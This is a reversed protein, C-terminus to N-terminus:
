GIIRGMFISLIASPDLALPVLSSSSIETSLSQCVVSGSISQLPVTLSTPSGCICISSSKISCPEQWVKVTATPHTTTTTNVIVLSPTARPTSITFSTVLTANDSSFPESSKTSINTIPLVTSNVATCVSYCRPLASCVVTPNWALFATLTINNLFAISTCTDNKGITAYETCSATAPVETPADSACGNSTNEQGNVGVCAWFGLLLTSSNCISAISPNWAIFDALSINSSRIITSCTINPSIFYWSYCYPSVGPLKPEPYGSLTGTINAASSNTVTLPTSVINSSTITTNKTTMATIPCVTTYDIITDTVVFGSSTYTSTTYFTSTTYQAVSAASSALLPTTNSLTYSLSQYITLSSTTTTTTIATIATSSTSTRTSNIVTRSASVALFTASKDTPLLTTNFLASLSSPPNPCAFVTSTFTTSLAPSPVVVNSLMGARINPYTSNPYELQNESDELDSLDAGGLVAVVHDNLSNNGSGDASSEWFMMGGLGRQKVETAKQGAVMVTDYSVLERMVPDYSYSSGTSNDYYVVAGDLPLSKFDYIGAERTGNGVGKYSEGLGNTNAFSRGYVPMGLVIKGSAIGQLTYYDIADITNFPTSAPNSPSNWFAAQNGANTSWPGTYDFALLNWFDVYKDMALLDLMEYNSPGGPGAVSLTFNYPTAMSNGYYNLACRIEQLLLTLDSAQTTNMPYEWDIDLGDLGLNQVLNVASSALMRRGAASSAPIAFNPSFTAGGISLLTKLKRNQM